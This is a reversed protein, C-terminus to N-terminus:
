PSSSIVMAEPAIDTDVIVFTPVNILPGSDTEADGVRTLNPPIYLNLGIVSVASGEVIMLGMDVKMTSTGTLFAICIVAIDEITM